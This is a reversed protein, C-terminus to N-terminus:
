RISAGTGGGHADEEGCPQGSGNRQLRRRRQACDDCEQKLRASGAVSPINVM